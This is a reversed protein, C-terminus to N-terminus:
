ECFFNFLQKWDELYDTLQSLRMKSHSVEDLTQNEMWRQEKDFSRFNLYM